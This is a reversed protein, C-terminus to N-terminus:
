SSFTFCIGVLLIRRVELAPAFRTMLFYLAVAVSREAAVLTSRMATFFSVGLQGAM